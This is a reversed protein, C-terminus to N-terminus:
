YFYPMIAPLLKEFLMEWGKFIRFRLRGAPHFTSPHSNAIAIVDVYAVGSRVDVCRNPEEGMLSVGEM